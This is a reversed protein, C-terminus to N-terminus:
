RHPDTKKRFWADAEIAEDLSILGDGDTDIRRFDEDTGLWERRSVDGDGNVDMRQFWLPGAKKSATVTDAPEEELDFLRSRVPIGACLAVRLHRPVEDKALSGDKNADWRAVNSWAARMERVSLQRDSNTDLLEFLCQGRDGISLVTFCTSGRDILDLFANLEEVTAKGDGNRDIFTFVDKLRPNRAADKKDLYTKKGRLAAHFQERFFRQFRERFAESGRERRFEVRAAETTLLMTGDDRKQLSPALAPARGESPLVQLPWEDLAGLLWSLPGASRVSRPRPGSLPVMLELDAPRKFWAVLETADLQGDKNADLANFTAEDFGIEARSLKGNKDKDYRTLLPAILKAPPDDLNVLSLLPPTNAPAPRRPPQGFGFELGPVLEEPTLLDDDNADLAALTKEIQSLEAKSLKGDKDRDLHKFLADTLVQASGQEPDPQVQLPGFGNKRYYTKLEDLTVKGDKNSDM